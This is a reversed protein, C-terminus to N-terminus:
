PGPWTPRWYNARDRPSLLIVVLHGSATPGKDRLNSLAVHSNKRISMRCHLKYRCPFINTVHCLGFRLNSMRNKILDVHFNCFMTVTSMAAKTKIEVHSMPSGGNLAWSTSQGSICAGRGAVNPVPHPQGRVKFLGM